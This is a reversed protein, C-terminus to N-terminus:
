RDEADARQFQPPVRTGNRMAEGRTRDRTGLALAHRVDARGAAGAGACRARNEIQPLRQGRRASLQTNPWRCCSATMWHAPRCSSISSAASVSACRWAGPRTLRSGYPSHIVSAHRGSRRLFRWSLPTKARCCALRSKRRVPLARSNSAAPKPCGSRNVCGLRGPPM